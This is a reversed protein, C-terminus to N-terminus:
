PFTTILGATYQLILAADIANTYGDENVDGAGTCPRPGIMGASIQLVIAADISNIMGDCNFDGLMGIVHVVVSRQITAAPCLGCNEVSAVLSLSAQTTGASKALFTAGGACSSGPSISCRGAGKNLFAWTISDEITIARHDTNQYHAEIVVPGGKLM